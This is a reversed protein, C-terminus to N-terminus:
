LTHHQEYHVQLLHTDQVPLVLETDNGGGRHKRRRRSKRKGGVRVRKKELLNNLDSFFQTAFAVAEEQSM